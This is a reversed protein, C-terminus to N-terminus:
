DVARELEAVRAGAAAFAEIVVMLRDTLAGITDDDQRWTGLAHSLERELAARRAGLKFYRQRAAHLPSRLYDLRARLASLRNMARNIDIATEARCVDTEARVMTRELGDVDLMLEAVTLTYATTKM